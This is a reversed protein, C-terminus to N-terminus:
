MVLLIYFSIAVRTSTMFKKLNYLVLNLVSSNTIRTSLSIMTNNYSQIAVFKNQGKKYDDNNIIMNAGREM